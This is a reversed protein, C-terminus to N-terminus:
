QKQIDVGNKRQKIEVSEFHFGEQSFVSRFYEHLEEKTQLRVEGLSSFGKRKGQRKAM